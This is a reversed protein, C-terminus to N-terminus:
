KAETAEALAAKLPKLVASDDKIGIKKAQAVLQMNQMTTEANAQAKLNTTFPNAFIFVLAIAVGIMAIADILGAVVFMWMRLTPMMEPQRAVGELFKGGLVGFGIATGLAGLGILLGAAVASMGNVQALIAIFNM